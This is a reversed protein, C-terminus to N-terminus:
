CSVAGEVRHNKLSEPSRVREENRLSFVMMGPEGWAGPYGEEGMGDM